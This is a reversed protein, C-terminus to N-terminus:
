GPMFDASSASCYMASYWTSAPMQYPPGSGSAVGRSMVFLRRTVLAKLWSSSVTCSHVVRGPECDGSQFEFVDLACQQTSSGVVVVAHVQQVSDIVGTRRLLRQAAYQRHNRTGRIPLARPGEGEVDCESVAAEFPQSNRRLRECRERGLKAPAHSGAFLHEAVGPRVVRAVPNWRQATPVDMDPHQDDRLLDLRQVFRAVLGPAKGSYTQDILEVYTDGAGSTLVEAEAVANTSRVDPSTRVRWQGAMVLDPGAFEDEAVLILWSLQGVRRHRVREATVAGVQRVPLQMGVYRREASKQALVGPRGLFLFQDACLDDAAPAATRREGQRGVPVIGLQRGVRHAVVVEEVVVVIRVSLTHRVASVDPADVRPVAELVGHDRDVRM